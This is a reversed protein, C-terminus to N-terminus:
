QEVSSFLPLERARGQAQAAEYVHAAAVVDEVALGNSKFITVERDDKRGTARGAVIEQLEVVKEWLHGGALLLDGSELRGQEASDIAIRAARELLEAPLERRSAQNSGAANVHTGPQVWDAELVPDKASTVTVVVDAGRVAEEASKAAEGGCEAAFKRTNEPNRSWVRVRHVPCVARIAELQSRAQFGSGIVAVTRADPRAMYKTALASAAGTRIQGLHNAELLALPHADESRYLLFLFWAGHKRHTAYVKAGFYRDDWAAMYHLVSGSPLVLRRRPQNAAAGEAMRRFADDLLRVADSVPLLERVDQETLYVM